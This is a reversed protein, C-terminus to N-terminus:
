NYNLCSSLVFTNRFRDTKWKPLAFYGQNRLSYPAKSAETLLRNIKNNKNSLTANFVKDCIEECYSIITSIGTEKRTENYSLIPCIISLARKQVRELECRLYKPLAYFFVPVAYVLISRICTVYFLALDRFPLRARKTQVLFYLRNSAKKTTESVHENWSVDSTIIM